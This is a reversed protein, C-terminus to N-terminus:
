CIFFDPDLICIKDSEHFFSFVKKRKWLPRKGFLIRFYQRLRCVFTGGIAHVPYRHGRCCSLGYQVPKLM